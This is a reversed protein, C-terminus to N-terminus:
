KREKDSRILSFASVGFTSIEAKAQSTSEATHFLIGSYLIEVQETNRIDNFLRLLKASIDVSTNLDLGDLTVKLRSLFYRKGQVNVFAVGQDFEVDALNSLAVQLYEALNLRPASAITESVFPNAVQIVQKTALQMLAQSNDINKLYSPALFNHRFPHYFESIETLSPQTLPVSNVNAVDNLKVALAHHASLANEGTILVMLQRSKNKFLAQEAVSFDQQQASHPLISLLNSEIRWQGFFLLYGGLLFVAILQLWYLKKLKNFGEM